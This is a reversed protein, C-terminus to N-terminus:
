QFEWAAVGEETAVLLVNKDGLKAAALGTLTAGYYFSDHLEGDESIVHISGDPGALWWEGQRGPLLNSSTVTDIPRQHAGKPLPYNWAEKLEGTIGVAFPEGQENGSLGLFKAQTGGAFRAAVLRGIPWQGVAQPSEENGFRNIRLVTGQEGTAFIGWSGTDSPRSVAVSTVNPFARNRWVTEGEVDVAVLGIEGVSAALIEPVGDSDGVDAWTLDVIALPAEDAAPITRVLKWDANFLYIQPGLPAAAAFRWRDSKDIAPRAYSVIAQEPLDLAHRAVVKGEASLESMTRWGEVVFIRPTQGTQEVVLLNGPAKLERCTWLEKLKLKKPESRQRIVAEPLEIVQGPEPGGRAVLEDYQKWEREHEGVIEAALNTGAKLREVIAVLQNALNPNGGMQFIQVRGEGDLVVVTPHGKIKFSSDGLAALDRVIPLEVKWAALQERLQDNSASTPDTAVAYFAVGKDSKLRDRAKSVEQLTAECAPDGHYWILVAIKGQLQDSGLQGGDLATFHLPGPNQGFLPSPLPPIPRVFSRMKKAAPPVALTFQQDDIAGGIKAGILEASLRLDTVSPDSALGPLLAAAPYDLRRLLSDTKDIWFVFSGGPSPVEIRVCDRGEAQGDALKKCAVDSAFAAALGGSELLLELQIPQRRLESNVINHLIEDSALDLLRLPKPAPRVLMQGDLNNTAEDAIQAVMERGDCKVTAQYATLSLKNPRAFQVACPWQDGSQQGGQAFQLKVIGQDQYTAAGRYTKLLRQLIENASLQSADTLPSDDAPSGASQTPSKTTGAPAPPPPSQFCGALASVLGLLAFCNRAPSNVVVEKDIRDVVMAGVGNNCRSDFHPLHVM